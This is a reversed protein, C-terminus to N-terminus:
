AAEKHDVAFAKNLGVDLFEEIFTSCQHRLSGSFRNEGGSLWLPLANLAQRIYRWGVLSSVNGEAELRRLVEEVAKGKHFAAHDGIVGKV